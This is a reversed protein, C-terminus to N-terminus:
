CVTSSSNAKIHTRLNNHIESQAAKRLIGSYAPSLLWSWSKCSGQIRSHHHIIQFFQLSRKAKAIHNVYNVELKNIKRNNM